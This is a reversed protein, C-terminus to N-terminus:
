ITIKVGNSYRAAMDMKLAGGLRIRHQELIEEVTEYALYPRNNEESLHGLFVHRMEGTVIEALLAGASKNSLHGKEGLIRQKLHWPYSGKKLLEEDHNAELLLVQSGELNERLTDTIHGIDTAATIKKKGATVSYGVPDAADHPISFPHVCLDNVVCTEGAYIFRKNRPSIKGLNGEMAAWTEMTAYIPVDYKRSFVGAGKIHDLHEHTIFLADIEEGTLKLQALGETIRKGSVGADILIKTHPSGIYLSNGSSGSAITCFEMDM